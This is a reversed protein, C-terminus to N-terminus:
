SWVSGGASRGANACFATQGDRLRTRLIVGMSGIPREPDKLAKQPGRGQLSEAMYGAGAMECPLRRALRGKKPKRAADQPMKRIARPTEMGCFHNVILRSTLLNRLKGEAEM